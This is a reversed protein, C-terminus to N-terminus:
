RGAPCSARRRPPPFIEPCPSPCVGLTLCGQGGTRETDNAAWGGCGTGPPLPSIKWCRGATHPMIMKPFRVTGSLSSPTEKMFFKRGQVVIRGCVLVPSKGLCHAPFANEGASAKVMAPQAVVRRSGRVRATFCKCDADQKQVRNEPPQDRNCPRSGWGIYGVHCSCCLGQRWLAVTAIGSITQLIQVM